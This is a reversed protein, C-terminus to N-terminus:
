TRGDIDDRTDDEVGEGGEAAIDNNKGGGLLGRLGTAGLGGAQEALDGVGTGNSGPGNWLGAVDDYAGRTGPMVDQPGGVRGYGPVYPQPLYTSSDFDFAKGNLVPFRDALKEFPLNITKLQNAMGGAIEDALESVKRVMAGFANDANKIKGLVKAVQALGKSVKTGIKASAEFASTITMAIGTGISGGFTWAANALAALGIMIARSVFDCIIELVIAKLTSCLLGLVMYCSSVAQAASGASAITEAFGNGVERYADAAEGKWHEIEALLDPISGAAGDLSGAINSWTQTLASIANPDGTFWELPERLFSVHEIIFGVGAMILEKFPNLAFALVDLGAVVGDIAFSMPDFDESGAKSLDTGVNYLSEVIRGGGVVSPGSNEVVLPNDSM